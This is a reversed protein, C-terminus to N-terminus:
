STPEVIIRRYSTLHPTGKATLECVIHISKGAADSPISIKIQNASADPLNIEQRYTGAETLVWWKYTLKDGDPDYSTSADIKISTGAKPTLKVGDIGEEINIFIVPNRNGVGKNAWDMRAAFNNFTASNFYKEYKRSVQAARTEGYNTYAYSKNDESEVWEFYGGWGVREPNEPDNLGNPLVLSCDIRLWYLLWFLGIPHRIDLM